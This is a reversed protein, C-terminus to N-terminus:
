HIRKKKIRMWESDNQTLEIAAREVGLCHTLRKEPLLEGNKELLLAERSCNIYDQYAMLLAGEKEIYDLVPQPLSLQAEVKPLSTVCWAPRSTWSLCMWGSLQIPLGAKYRPRQVGVFQVM